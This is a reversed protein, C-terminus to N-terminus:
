GSLIVTVMKVLERGFSPILLVWPPCYSGLSHCLGTLQCGTKQEEVMAYSVTLLSASPAPMQWQHLQWVAKPALM